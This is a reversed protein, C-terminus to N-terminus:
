DGYYFCRAYQLVVEEEDDNLLYSEWSGFWDNHEIVASSPTGHRGLSGTIAVAPGGTCLTIRYEDPSVNDSMFRSPSAWDTRVEVSLPDEYIRERAEDVAEHDGSDEANQLEDILSQIGELQAKAQELSQKSM